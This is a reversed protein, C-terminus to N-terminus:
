VAKRLSKNLILCLSPAFAFVYFGIEHSTLVPNLAFACLYCILLVKLIKRSSTDIDFSKTSKRIMWFIFYYAFAGVIGVKALTDLLSSHNGIISDGANYINTGLIPNQLFANWSLSYVEFRAVTSVGFEKNFLMNSIEIVKSFFANSTTGVNDSFLYLTLFLLFIILIPTLISIPSKRQYLLLMFALFVLAIATFYGAQIEFLLLLIIILFLLWKTKRTINLLLLAGLAWILIFSSGYCFGFGGINRLRYYDLAVDGQALIRVIRPEVLLQIQTNVLVIVIFVTICLVYLKQVKSSRYCLIIPILSPAFNVFTQTIIGIAKELDNSYTNTYYLISLVLAVLLITVYVAFDLNSSRNSIHNLLVAITFGVVVIVPSVQLTQAPLIYWSSCYALITVMIIDTVSIITKKEGTVLKSLAM